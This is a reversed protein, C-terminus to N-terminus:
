YSEGYYVYSQGNGFNSVIPEHYNKFVALKKQILGKVDHTQSTDINIFNLIDGKDDTIILPITTNQTVVTSAFAIEQGNTSKTITKIGDVLQFVKKKEEVALKQALQGTYFLSAGVIFLAIFVLYTKWNLYQRM